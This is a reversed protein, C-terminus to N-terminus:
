RLALDMQRFEGTVGDQCRTQRFQKQLWAALGLQPRLQRGQTCRGAFSEKIIWLIIAHGPAGLPGAFQYDPSICSQLDIDHRFVIQRRDAGDFGASM